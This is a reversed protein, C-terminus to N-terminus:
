RNVENNHDVDNNNDCKQSHINAVCLKQQYKEAIWIANPTFM